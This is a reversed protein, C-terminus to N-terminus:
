FELQFSLILQPQVLHILQSDLLLSGLSLLFQGRGVVCKIQPFAVPRNLIMTLNHYQHRNLKANLEVSLLHCSNTM